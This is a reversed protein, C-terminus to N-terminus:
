FFVCILFNIVLLCSYYLCVEMVMIVYKILLLLRNVIVLDGDKIYCYVIDGIEVVM